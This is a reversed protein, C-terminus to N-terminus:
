FRFNKSTRKQPVYGLHGETYGEFIYGSHSAPLIKLMEVAEKTLFTHRRYRAKTENARLNARAFGEDRIELDTWKRSLTEGIRMGSISLVALVAKYLPNSLKLMTVLQEKSPCMKSQSVYVAGGPCLRDFTRKRANEEGLTSQFMAIIIWRHVYTTFPAHSKRMYDLYRQVISYVTVKDSKISEFIAEISQENTKELEAVVYRRNRRTAPSISSHELWMSLSITDPAILV